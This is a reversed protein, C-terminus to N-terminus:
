LNAWPDPQRAPLIISQQGGSTEALVPASEPPATETRKERREEEPVDIAQVLGQAPGRETQINVKDGLAVRVPTRYTYLRGYPKGNTGIFQVKIVNTEATKM